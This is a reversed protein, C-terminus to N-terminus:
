LKRIEMILSITKQCILAKLTKLLLANILDFLNRGKRFRKDFSVVLCKYKDSVKYTREEKGFSARNVIYKTPNSSLSIKV